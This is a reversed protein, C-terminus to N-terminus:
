KILKKSFMGTHVIWLIKLILIELEHEKPETIFEAGRKRWEKHCSWIDAIRIIMFNSADDVKSTYPALTPKDDTPSGGQNLVVLSNAIQIITPEGSRVALNLYKFKRALNLYSSKNSSVCLLSQSLIIQSSCTGGSM